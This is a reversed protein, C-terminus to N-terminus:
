IKIFQSSVAKKLWCQEMKNRESFRTGQGMCHECWAHETQRLTHHYTLYNM